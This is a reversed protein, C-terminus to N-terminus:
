MLEKCGRECVKKDTRTQGFIKEIGIFVGTLDNCDYITLLLICILSLVIWLINFIFTFWGIALGM